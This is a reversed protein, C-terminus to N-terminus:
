DIQEPPPPEFRRQFRMIVEDARARAEATEALFAELVQSRDRGPNGLTLVIHAFLASLAEDRAKAYTIRDIWVDADDRGGAYMAVDGRPWTEAFDDVLAIVNRAAHEWMVAAM